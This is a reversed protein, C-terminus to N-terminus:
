KPQKVVFSQLFIRDGRPQQDKVIPLRKGDPQTYLGIAIPYSGPPLHDPLTLHHIQAFVDGPQLSQSTLMLRDQQTVIDGQENLVHTFQSLQPPLQDTARWYTILQADNGTQSVTYGLFEVKGGLDIPLIAAEHSGDFKVLSQAAISLRQVLVASPDAKLIVGLRDPLETRDAQPLLATIPFQQLADTDPFAYRATGKPVILTDVCNYYRVDVDPRQLLYRMHQWAPRWWSTREDILYDPLCVVLPSTDPDRQVNHAVASLGTQHWFRVDNNAPWVFFYDRVTWVLNGAFILGILAYTLKNPFRRVWAAVAIGVIILFVIQTSLTRTYNPAPQSLMGPILGIFFWLLVFIYEPKRWRWVCVILGIVLLLSGIPELVPRDPVDYYPLPDGVFTFMGLTRLSTELVPELNGQQLERLPRDIDFFGLQDDAPNMALYIFMPASVIVAVAVTIAVATIWKRWESRESRKVILAYVGFAVFVVPIVRSATYALLAMGLWVGAFIWLAIARKGQTSFARWFFYAGLAGLPVIMVVPSVIRGFEVTWFTIAFGALATLAAIPGFLRRALAWIVCMAIMSLIISPWRVAWVSKGFVSMIPASFYYHLPESGTDEPYFIAYRGHLVEEAFKAAVVEDNHLGPPVRTLDITRLAFALLLVAVVAIWERRSIRHLVIPTSSM